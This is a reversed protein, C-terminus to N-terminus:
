SMKASMAPRSPARPGEGLAPVLGAPQTEQPFAAAGPESRPADLHRIEVRKPFGAIEAHGLRLLVVRQELREAFIGFARPEGRRRPADLDEAFEDSRQAIGLLRAMRDPAVRLFPQPGAHRIAQRQVQQRRLRRAPQVALRSAPACWGRRGAPARISSILGASAAVRPMAGPSMTRMTLSRPAQRAQASRDSSMMRPTTERGVPAENSGSPPKRSRLLLGFTSVRSM